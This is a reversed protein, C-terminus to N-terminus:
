LFCAGKECGSFLRDALNSILGAEGSRGIEGFTEPIIKVGSRGIQAHIEAPFLRGSIGRNPKGTGFINRISEIKTRRM